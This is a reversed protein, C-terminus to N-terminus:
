NVRTGGRGGWGLGWSKGLKKRELAEGGGGGGTDDRGSVKGTNNRYRGGKKQSDTGQQTWGVACCWLSKKKRNGGLLKGYAFRRSQGSSDASDRTRYGQRM